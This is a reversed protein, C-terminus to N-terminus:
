KMARETRHAADVHLAREPCMNVIENLQLRVRGPFTPRAIVPYGENDSDVFEPATGYCLGHGACADRDIVLTIEDPAM